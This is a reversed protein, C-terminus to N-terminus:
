VESTIVIGWAPENSWDRCFEKPFHMVSLFEPCGGFAAPFNCTAWGPCDWLLLDEAGGHMKDERTVFAMLVSNQALSLSELNGGEGWAEDLVFSLGLVVFGKSNWEEFGAKLVMSGHLFWFRLEPLAFFVNIDMALLNMEKSAREIALRDVRKTRLIVERCCFKKHQEWMRVHCPGIM